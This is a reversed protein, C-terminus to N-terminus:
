SSFVHLSAYREDASEQCAAKQEATTCGACCADYRFPGCLMDENVPFLGLELGVQDVSVIVQLQPIDAFCDSEVDPPVIRRLVDSDLAVTRVGAQGRVADHRFFVANLFEVGSNQGPGIGLFCVFCESTRDHGARLRLGDIHRLLGM